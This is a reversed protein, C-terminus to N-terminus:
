VNLSSASSSYVNLGGAQILCFIIFGLKTIYDDNNSFESYTYLKLRMGSMDLCHKSLALTEFAKVINSINKILKIRHGNVAEKKVQSLINTPSVIDPRTHGFWYFKHRLRRFTDYYSCTPLASIQNAYIHQTM